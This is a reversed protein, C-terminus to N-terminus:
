SFYGLKVVFFVAFNALLNCKVEEAVLFAFKKGCHYLFKILVYKRM